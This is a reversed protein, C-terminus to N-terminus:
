DESFQLEYLRAYVGGRALLDDHRGEDVVRGQDMVVIKDARRITSLRHAIVLTTRGESLRDLAEQVHAESEADLASTAEDLLLIPAERLLARAIAVRQRQGGSLQSGRPGAMTELGLPADRVFDELHAAAIAKNIEVDTVGSKALCINTRLNEDFMPADQTVVSFLQRLDALDLKTTSVDGVSIEGSSADVLRTLASFVTSKGAGSAGVIATTEGAKAMFSVGRLAPQDAYRVDVDQFRIDAAGPADPLAATVAPSLITPRVQFLARM